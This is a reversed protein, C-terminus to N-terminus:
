KEAIPMDPTLLHLEKFFAKAAPGIRDKDLYNLYFSESRSGGKALRLRQLEGSNLQDIIAPLPLWAYGLNQIILDISARLHSVTWRQEAGLWGVSTKNQSASDRVIIQRHSKLDEYSLDRNTRHLAHDKHAVAVFQIRCIEENLSGQLPIPSLGIDAEGATILENSGSLVTDIIDISIQPYLSSVKDLARFVFRQPIAGDVAIRLESEVGSSLSEAVAEIRSTENLLYQGRRLMLKGAETLLIKRGEVEFLKVNLAQELNTVARHISSQSKHIVSAARNFGGADAVAKFMRWQELSTKQM